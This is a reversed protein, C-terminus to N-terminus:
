RSRLACTTDDQAFRLSESRIGERLRFIGVRMGVGARVALFESAGIWLGALNL